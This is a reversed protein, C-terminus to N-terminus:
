PMIQGCVPCVKEKFQRLQDNLENFEQQLRSVNQIHICEIMGVLSALDNWRTDAALWAAHAKEIPEIQRISKVEAELDQTLEIQDIMNRVDDVAEQSEKWAEGLKILKKGSETAEAANKATQDHELVRQVNLRVLDVANQAATAEVEAAEVERLDEDILKVSRLSEREERAAKLREETLEVRENAKRLASNLFTLTDDIVSLNIIANIKRSVEGATNSFWWPPEYQTQFNVDNVDILDAIPKPVATNFSKYEQDDLRYSNESKGRVRSIKVGDVVLIVKAADVEHKIFETGTNGTIQNRTVWELARIVSSKGTDTAGTIYTIQPDFTITLKEHNQFNRLTLSELM